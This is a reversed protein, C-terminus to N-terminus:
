KPYKQYHEAWMKKIRHEIKRVIYIRQRRSLKGYRDEFASLRIGVVRKYLRIRRELDQRAYEEEKKPERTFLSKVWQYM